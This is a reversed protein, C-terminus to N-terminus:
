GKHRANDDRDRYTFVTFKGCFTITFCALGLLLLPPLFTFDDAPFRRMDNKVDIANVTDTHAPMSGAVSSETYALPLLLHTTM